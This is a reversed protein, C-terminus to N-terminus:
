SPTCEGPALVIYAVFDMLKGSHKPIKHRATKAPAPVQMGVLRPQLFRPHVLREGRQLLAAPARARESRLADLASHSAVPVTAGAILPQATEAVPLWAVPLEHQRQLPQAHSLHHVASKTFCARTFVEIQIDNELM